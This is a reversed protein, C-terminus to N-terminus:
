VNHLGVVSLQGLQLVQSTVVSAQDTAAFLNPRTPWFVCFTFSLCYPLTVCIDCGNNPMTGPTTTPDHVDLVFVAQSTRARLTEQETGEDTPAIRRKVARGPLRLHM